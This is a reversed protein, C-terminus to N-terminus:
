KEVYQLERTRDISLDSNGSNRPLVMYFRECIMVEIIGHELQLELIHGGRTKQRDLYHLHYGPVNIGKVFPPFRFGVVTGYTNVMRFVPQHKVVEKLPPYPKRQAPVSRTKVFSFKGTIRIAYFLNQDPYMQNIKKYLESLSLNNIMESYRDIPRFKTVTAFPTKISSSPTYVKGDAKIQYIKKDLVVMEGDLADFTGIGFDGHKLLQKCTMQGDYVGALLADITSAQFTVPPNKRDTTLCGAALFLMTAVLLLNIKKM